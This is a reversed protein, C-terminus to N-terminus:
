PRQNIYDDFTLHGQSEQRVVRLRDSFFPHTRFYALRREPLKQSFRRLKNLASLAGEPDYDAKKLYRVGLRDAELEDKQSYETLISAVAVQMGFRARSNAGGAGVAIAQLVQLG